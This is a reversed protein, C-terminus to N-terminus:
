QPVVMGALEERVGELYAHVAEAVIAPCQTAPGAILVASM